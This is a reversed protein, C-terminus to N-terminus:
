MFISMSARKSIKLIHGIIKPHYREAEPDQKANAQKKVLKM